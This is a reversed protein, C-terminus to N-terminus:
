RREDVERGVRQPEVRDAELAHEPGPDARLRRQEDTRQDDAEDHQEAIQPQGCAEPWGGPGPPPAIRDM